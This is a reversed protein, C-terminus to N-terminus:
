NQWGVGEEKNKFYQNAQVPYFLSLSMARGRAEFKYHNRDLEDLSDEALRVMAEYDELLEEFSM